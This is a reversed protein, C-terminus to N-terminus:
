KGAKCHKCLRSEPDVDLIGAEIERGCGECVGYKGTQIKSLAVDIEGLRNKLDQAIALQNGFEEAEDTEEDFHDVDSGFDPPKENKKIEATLLAREKELRKKYEEVKQNDMRLTYWARDIGLKGVILWDPLPNGFGAIRCIVNQRM